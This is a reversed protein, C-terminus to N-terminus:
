MIRLFRMFFFFFFFFVVIVMPMRVCSARESLECVQLEHVLNDMQRKKNELQQLKDRLTETERELQEVNCQQQPQPQEENDVNGNENVDETDDLIARQAERAENLQERMRLQLSVLHSQHEQLQALNRQSEEVKKRLEHERQSVEGNELEGNQM